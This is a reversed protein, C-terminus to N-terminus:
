HKIQRCFKGPSMSTWRHFARTFSSQESYGLIASIENLDKETNNLLWISTHFRVKDIIETYSTHEKALTRQLTRISLNALEAVLKIDLSSEILYPPLLKELNESLNQKLTEDADPIELGIDSTKGTTRKSFLLARPFEVAGYAQDTSVSVGDYASELDFNLNHAQSKLLLRTPMFNPGAFARVVMEM